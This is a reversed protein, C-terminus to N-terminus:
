KRLFDNLIKEFFIEYINESKNKKILKKLNYIFEIHYIKQFKSLDITKIENKKFYNLTEGKFKKDHRFKLYKDQFYIVIESSKFIKKDYWFM